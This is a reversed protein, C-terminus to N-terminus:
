LQQIHMHPSTKLGCAANKTRISAYLHFKVPGDDWPNILPDQLPQLPLVKNSGNFMPCQRVESLFDAHTSIVNYRVFAQDCVRWGLLLWVKESDRSEMPVMSKPYFQKRYATRLM